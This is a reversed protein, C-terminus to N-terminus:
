IAWKARTLAVTTTIFWGSRIGDNSLKHTRMFKRATKYTFEHHKDDYIIPIVDIRGEDDKHILIPSNAPYTTLQQM